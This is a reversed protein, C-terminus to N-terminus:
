SNQITQSTTEINQHNEMARPKYQKPTQTQSQHITNNM